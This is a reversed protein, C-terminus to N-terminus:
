CGPRRRLQYARAIVKATAELGHLELLARVINDLGAGRADEIIVAEMVEAAEGELERLLAKYSGRGLRLSM